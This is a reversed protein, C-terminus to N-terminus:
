DGWEREDVSADLAAKLRWVDQQNFSHKGEVERDTLAEAAAAGLLKGLADPLEDVAFRQGRAAGASPTLENAAPIPEDNTKADDNMGRIKVRTHHRWL